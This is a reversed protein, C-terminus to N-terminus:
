ENSQELEEMVDDPINFNAAVKQVDDHDDLQEMLKLVKKATEVDLDITDTPIRNLDSMEIEIGANGLEEQLNGFSDPDSIVEFKGDVLKVDEAGAEMALELLKEEEVQECDIVVIGKREFMWAVCGTAGLKGGAIEFIKRVEPATRNRNDTLIECLVAVGGPGYGEYLAEDFSEGELEGSGKKIAREINDKPMSVAKADNIAYRLRLNTDPDGGGMKAAVIIAKSLKSWVKGRKNDILAKKHKIGAWHSHGAM